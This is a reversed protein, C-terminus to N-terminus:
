NLLLDAWVLRHRSAQQAIAAAQTGQAPWDVGSEAITLDHSPLIYSVRLHGPEPVPWAVTDLRPDGRHGAGQTVAGARRPAPDQLRPDSLITLIAEKRGDGDVPDLNFDGLIVFDTGPARGVEGDLFRKWFLIEDRNRLGNRDEPGDFVPPAAHFALLHIKKEGVMVPVVWHGVSSLRQVAQVEESWFAGGDVTQPLKAGPLDRWLLASFDQVNARDIPYRSLIAMGGQGAFFGYSQADRPGGRRGDADLDLGTFMGTNPRLAFLHPYALDHAAIRDRLATLARLGHDYDLGQLLLVDPANRAIVRAVADIQTDKGRLIDRLLLGPGKRHM